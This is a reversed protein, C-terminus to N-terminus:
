TQIEALTDKHQCLLQAQQAVATIGLVEPEAAQDVPRLRFKIHAVMDEALRHLRQFLHLVVVPVLETILHDVLVAQELLLQIHIVQQLLYREQAIDVAAVVEAPLGSLVVEAVM